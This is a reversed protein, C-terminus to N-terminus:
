WQPGCLDDYCGAEITQAQNQEDLPIDTEM